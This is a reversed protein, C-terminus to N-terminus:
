KKQVHTKLLLLMGERYEAYDDAPKWNKGELYRRIFRPHDIEDPNGEFVNTLLTGTVGRPVVSVAPNTHGQLPPLALYHAIIMAIDPTEAYPISKGRKIGPGYFNMYIRWSSIVSAPHDSKVTMGMGHDSSIIVLTSDWMSGEKLVRVIRGLLRDVQLLYRQYRSDPKLRDDPGTWNRRTEQIHLSLLRAKDKRIHEVAFDVVLSDTTSAAYCYDPTDFVSYNEANGSFLSVIGSRRAALFVDDM